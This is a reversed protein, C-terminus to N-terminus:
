NYGYTSPYPFTLACNMHQRVKQLARGTMLLFFYNPWQQEAISCGM